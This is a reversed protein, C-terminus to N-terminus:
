LKLGECKTKSSALMMILDVSKEDAIRCIEEYITGYAVIHQVKQVKLFITKPLNTCNKTQKLWWKKISIKRCFASILSNDVPEIISM